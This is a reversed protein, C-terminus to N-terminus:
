GVLFDGAVLPLALNEDRMLVPRYPFVCKTMFAPCGDRDQITGILTVYQCTIISHGDRQYVDDFCTVNLLGTEDELDFFVVRKGSQTPPFRLRIPNGVVIVKSDPPKRRAEETTVGGRAMVREREFAMLHRNIDMGLLAREYVAKEAVSFDIVSPDLTPEIMDLPLTPNPCDRGTKAYDMAEPVAWLMSRRNHHMSDFAGSLIFAELEDREPQVKLAFDFMSGFPKITSKKKRNYPLRDRGGVAVAVRGDELPVSRLPDRIPQSEFEFYVEQLELMRDRTPASLGSLQMLGTRIASSPVVLGTLLDSSSEVEFRCRSACVDLPLIKIGRSRAENAITASGYYGAPQASLLAAFYEAPHNQMLSISRLSVEAFALAHGEAFGYGKFGSIYDFVQEAVVRSYGREMIREILVEKITAGYDERRHQHVRDRIDEAQGSTFGCFTQLLQDVQEQFVIIGYTRGLIAELHPHEFSYPKGRRRAILENIKVAGGVGPRIGAQVLSADKLNSTRLRVHAQRMAPSASQPIGILEGARMARYVEKDNTAALRDSSFDPDSARMRTEVGGLVDQGRLCLIDFKDFCHKATRKDWQIMRLLGEDTRAEDAVPSASWMTPVTYAIPDSSIVVGSSHLGIHTPVDMLREALEFVWQFKERPITSDRLEPRAELASELQNAPIGGHIRKALFGITEQPLGFVKGVARVIGRTRYTGIAAVSAVRDIGYKRILYGKIDDRRRAEFDIDIDPRKLGDEPLFRDFHLNHEIADIRSLGLVYAVASDVVSGRGSMGIGQERAFRCFDWAALFHTAFNLRVIRETESRIRRKHKTSLHGYAVAAEAWVIEKFAHNDDPFLPPLQTRKPLVDDECREAVRLTNALLDPRDAYLEAMEHSSRVYREGNLSREPPYFMEPQGETRRPKRGVVEEVLCLSEACLAIDQAPFHEPRGHTVVGGAVPMLKLSAALDLLQSEVMRGWPLFSREIEVFLNERGYITLLREAIAQAERLKRGVLLRDIPGVDGGTLCLLDQSYRQLREWSGLPFQRPEELHCATCLQSLSRYGAPTKAILVVMGGEPLEISAGVLPKIGNRLCSKAFEFAGVLSYPDAIAAAACGGTAAYIAAEEALMTSRGYAYGSLMHLAAYSELKPKISIEPLGNREQEAREYYAPPLSGCAASVKEDRIKKLGLTWEERFNTQIPQQRTEPIIGLSPLDKEETRRLGNADIYTRFEKAPEMAWWARAERWVAFTQEGHGAM